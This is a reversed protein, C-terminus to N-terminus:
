LRAFLLLLPNRVRRRPQRSVAAPIGAVRLVDESDPPLTATLRAGRERMQLLLAVGEPCASTLGSLDVLLEKGRTVSSATEWAYGLERTADGNLEGKLVFRFTKANDHQYIEM